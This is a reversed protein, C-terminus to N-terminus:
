ILRLVTKIVTPSPKDIPDILDTKFIEAMISFILVEHEKTSSSTGEKKLSKLVSIYM